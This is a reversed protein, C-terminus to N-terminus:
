RRVDRAEPAATATSASSSEAIRDQIWGEVATSAWAVRRGGLSVQKPFEGSAIKKYLLTRGISTLAMVQAASLLSLGNAPYTAFRHPKHASEKKAIPRHRPM